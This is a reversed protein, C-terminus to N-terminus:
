LSSSIPAQRVRSIHAHLLILYTKLKSPTIRVGYSFTSLKLLSKLPALPPFPFWPCGASSTDSNNANTKTPLM